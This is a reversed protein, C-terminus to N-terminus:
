KWPFLRSTNCCDPVSEWPPYMGTAWVSGYKIMPLTKKKNIQIVWPIDQCVILPSLISSWYKAWRYSAGRRPSERRNWLGPLSEFFVKAIDTELWGYEKECLWWLKIMIKSVKHHVWDLKWLVIVDCWNRRCQTQLTSMKMYQSM